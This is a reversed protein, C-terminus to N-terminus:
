FHLASFHKTQQVAWHDATETNETLAKDPFSERFLVTPWEDYGCECRAIVKLRDNQAELVPQGKVM